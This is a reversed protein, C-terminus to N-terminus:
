HAQTKSLVFMVGPVSFYNEMRLVMDEVRVPVYGEEQALALIYHPSHTFHGAPHMRLAERGEHKEITFALLSKSSLVNRAVHLFQAADGIHGLVDCGIVLDFQRDSGLMFERADLQYLEEYLQRRRAKDIMRASLDVGVRRATMDRFAEAAIGTGCGIDLLSLGRAGKLEPMGRLAEFLLAPAKYLTIYQAAHDYFDACSDFYASIFQEPQATAAEGRLVARVYRLSVNEPEADLMGNIQALAEGSKAQHRLVKMLLQLAYINGPKLAVAQRLVQEAAEYRNQNCLLFGMLVYGEWGQPYAQLLQLAYRVALEGQGQQESLLAMHYLADCAQPNLKLARAFCAEAEHLRRGERLLKGKNIYGTCYDPRRAIVRNFLMEAESAKGEALLCLGEYEDIRADDGLTRARKFLTPMLEFRGQKASAEAWLLLPLVSDSELAHAKEFAEMALAWDGIAAHVQGQLIHFSAVDPAMNIAMQSFNLARSFTGTAKFLSAMLHYAYPFGPDSHLIEKCLDAAKRLDGGELLTEAERYATFLDAGPQM